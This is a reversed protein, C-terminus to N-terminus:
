LSAENEPSEAVWKCPGSTRLRDTHELPASTPVGKGAIEGQQSNGSKMPPPRMTVIQLLKKRDIKLVIRAL